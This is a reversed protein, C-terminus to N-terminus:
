ESESNEEKKSEPLSLQSIYIDMRTGFPLIYSGSAYTFISLSGRMFFFGAKDKLETRVLGNTYVGHRSYFVIFDADSKTEIKTVLAGGRQIPSITFQDTIIPPYSFNSGLM